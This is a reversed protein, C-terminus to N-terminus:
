SARPWTFWFTSGSHGDSTVGVDGGADGVLKQVIALGQGGGGGPKTSVQLRFIADQFAPPVGPGNDAVEIRLAAPETKARIHIEVARDGAHEVANVILNHLIERLAVTPGYVVPLNEAFVTVGLEVSVQQVLAALDVDDSTAAGGARVYHLLDEVLKTMSRAQGDILDLPEQVAEAAPGLDEVVWNKLQLIRRIPAKLDHSAIRAFADLDANRRDLLHVARRLEMLSVVQRALRDLADLQADTLDRPVHDIVCLTGLNAGETSALPIGAYFRLDPASTVLPNDMFRPDDRADRVVLPQSDLIAHACFAVDRPTQPADLGHRSKFWQRDHDVLSVLSIPTGCLHSALATLDDFAAEADTDLLRYAHLIALRQSENAPFPAKIM